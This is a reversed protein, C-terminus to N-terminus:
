IRKSLSQLLVDGIVDRRWGSLATPLRYEGAEDASRLLQELLRRKALMEPAVSLKKATEEVLKKLIELSQGNVPMNPKRIRELLEHEPKNRIAEVLKMLEAGFKRIQRPSLGAQHQLMGRRDLTSPESATGDGGFQAIQFLSKEEVVRNRPVDLSRAKVERWACLSQLLSLQRRDLRWSNKVKQYYAEPEIQTPIDKLIKSCEQAVWHTKDSKILGFKQLEYVHLLHIVDVAAYDLQAKTLPRKLWDSRTEGKPIRLSTYFEILNQYSLSFGVGLAAAAIQTDFIPEPLVGLSHQFVEMDESCAHLVKTVSKDSLLNGLYSFDGVELPDVLYCSVGDYIQILGVIPYYTNFRAFETDIAVASKLLCQGVIEDLRESSTIYEFEPGM